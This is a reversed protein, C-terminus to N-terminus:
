NLRVMLIMELLRIMKIVAIKKMADKAAIFILLSAKLNDVETIIKAIQAKLKLIKEAVLTTEAIKSSDQELSPFSQALQESNAQIPYAVHEVKKM